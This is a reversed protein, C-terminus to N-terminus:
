DQQVMCVTLRVSLAAQATCSTPTHLVAGNFVDKGFLNDHYNELCRFNLNIATKKIQETIKM